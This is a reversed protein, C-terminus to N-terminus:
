LQILDDVGAKVCDTGVPKLGSFNIKGKPVRGESQLVELKGSVADKHKNCTVGVMYEGDNSVVSIVFEPPNICNKGKEKVSCRDPFM